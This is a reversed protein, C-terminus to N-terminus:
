ATAWLHTRLATARGSPRDVTARVAAETGVVILDQEARTVATYLLERTLDPRGAGAM